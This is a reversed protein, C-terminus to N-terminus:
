IRGGQKRMEPLAVRRGRGLLALGWVRSDKRIEVAWMGGGAFAEPGELGLGSGARRWVEVGRVGGRWTHMVAAGVLSRIGCWQIWQGCPLPEEQLLGESDQGLKERGRGAPVMRVPGNRNRLCFQSWQQREVAKTVRGPIPAEASVQSTGERWDWGRGELARQLGRRVGWGYCGGGGWNCRPGKDWKSTKGAKIM